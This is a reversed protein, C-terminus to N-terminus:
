NPPTLSLYTDSAAAPPGWCCHNWNDVTFVLKVVYWKSAEKGKLSESGWGTVPMELARKEFM